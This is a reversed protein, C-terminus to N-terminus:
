SEDKILHSGSMLELLEQTIWGLRRIDRVLANPDSMSGRRALRRVFSRESPIRPAVEEVLLAAGRKVAADIEPPLQRLDSTRGISVLNTLVGRLREVVRSLEEADVGGHATHARNLDDFVDDLHLPTWRHLRNLVHQLETADL